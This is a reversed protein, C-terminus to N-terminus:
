LRAGGSGLGIISGRKNHASPCVLLVLTFTTEQLERREAKKPDFQLNSGLTAVRVGKSVMHSAPTSPQKGFRHSARAETGISPNPSGFM